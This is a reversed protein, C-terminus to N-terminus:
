PGDFLVSLDSTESVDVLAWARDARYFVFRWVVAGKDFRELHTVRVVRDGASERSRLEHGLSLGLTKRLERRREEAEEIRTALEPASLPWHLAALRFAGKVDGAVISGLFAEALDVVDDESRLSSPVADIPSAVLSVLAVVVLVAACRRALRAPQPFVATRM